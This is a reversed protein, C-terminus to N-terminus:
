GRYLALLPAAVAGWKMQDAWRGTLTRELKVAAGKPGQTPLTAEEKHLRPTYGVGRVWELATPQLRYGASM